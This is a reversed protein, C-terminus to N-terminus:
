CPQHDRRVSCSGAEKEHDWGECRACVSEEQGRGLQGPSNDPSARSLSTGLFASPDGAWLGAQIHPAPQKTPAGEQEGPGARSAQGWVTLVPQQSRNELATGMAPPAMARVPSIPFTSADWSQGPNLTVRLGRFDGSTM